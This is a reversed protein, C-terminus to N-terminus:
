YQSQGCHVKSLFLSSVISLLAFLFKGWHGRKRLIMENKNRYEMRTLDIPYKTQMKHAHEAALDHGVRKHGGRVTAQWAGRHTPNELCSYQLPKGNEEGPSRGSGSISDADRANASPNKAESGGTFGKIQDADEHIGMAITLYNRAKLHFPRHTPQEGASEM